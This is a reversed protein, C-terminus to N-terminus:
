QFGEKKSFTNHGYSAYLLLLLLLLLMPMTTTFVAALLSDIPSSSLSARLPPVPLALRLLARLCNQRLVVLFFLIIQTWWTTFQHHGQLPTQDWTFKALHEFEIFISEKHWLYIIVGNWKRIKSPMNCSENPKFKIAIEAIIPPTVLFYCPIIIGKTAFKEEFINEFDDSRVHSFYLSYNTILLVICNSCVCM